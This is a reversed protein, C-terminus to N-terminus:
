NISAHHDQRAPRSPVVLIGGHSPHRIVDVPHRYVESLLEATMVQDPTGMARISGDAVVAIRDAYAAASTLDHLVAVVAMGSRANRRSHELIREQHHIDLAATPEDLFHVRTGQALIRAYSTRAKEGGSLTTFKRHALEAVDAVQLAREIVMADDDEASTGRWPARGMKVIEAVSFPFSVQQEQLLVARHRALIEASSQHVDIGDLEVTGADPKRDGSLVSLLTSKGAGNPGVIILLEGALVDIDVNRLIQNGGLEVSIGTARVALDAPSM